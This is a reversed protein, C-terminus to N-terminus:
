SKERWKMESGVRVVVSRVTPGNCEGKIGRKPSAHLFAIEVISDRRPSSSDCRLTVVSSKVTPSIKRKGSKMDSAYRNEFTATMIETWKGQRTFYVNLDARLHEFAPLREIDRKNFRLFNHLISDRAYRRDM